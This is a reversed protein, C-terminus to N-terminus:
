ISKEFLKGDVRKEKESSAIVKSLFPFYHGEQKKTNKGGVGKINKKLDNTNTGDQRIQKRQNINRLDLEKWISNPAVFTSKLM